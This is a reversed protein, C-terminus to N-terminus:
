WWRTSAPSVTRSVHTPINQLLIMAVLIVNIWLLRIPRHSVVVDM